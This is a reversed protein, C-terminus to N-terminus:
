GVDLEAWTLVITEDITGDLNLDVDLQVNLNDLATVLVSSSNDSILMRGSSPNDDGLVIFDEQTAFTVSGEFVDSSLTGGANITETQANLDITVAVLYDSLSEGIGDLDVSLQTSGINANIVVNDDSNIDLDLDGNITATDISDTATLDVFGFTGVFGWPAVQNVPDGTVM